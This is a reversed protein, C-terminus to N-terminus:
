QNPLGSTCSEAPCAPWQGLAQLQEPRLVGIGFAAVKGNQVGITQPVRYIKMRVREAPEAVLLTRSEIGRQKAYQRTADPLDLSLYLVKDSGVKKELALWNPFNEMCVHCTTTFVFLLKGEPALTQPQGELSIVKVAPMAEGIELSPVPPATIADFRQQFRYLKFILAGNIAVSLLLLLM